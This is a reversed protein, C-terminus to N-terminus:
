PGSEPWHPPPPLPAPPPPPPLPVGPPWHSPGGTAYPPPGAWPSSWPPPPWGAAIVQPTSDTRGPTRRRYALFGVVAIGVSVVFVPFATLARDDAATQCQDVFASWQARATPNSAPPEPGAGITVPDFFAIIAAESGQGPGCTGGASPAPLGILLGTVAFAAGLVGLFVM